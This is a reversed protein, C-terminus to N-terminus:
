KWHKRNINKEKPVVPIAWLCSLLDLKLYYFRGEEKTKQM